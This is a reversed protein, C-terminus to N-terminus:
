AAAVLERIWRCFPSSVPVDGFPATTCAAPMYASGERARLLFVAMQDRTVRPTRATPAPALLRVHRRANYLSHM